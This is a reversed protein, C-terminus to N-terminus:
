EPLQRADPKEPPPMSVALTTRSHEMVVNPTMTKARKQARPRARRPRDLLGQSKLVSLAKGKMMEALVVRQKFRLYKLDMPMREQTRLDQDFSMPPDPFEFIGTRENEKPVLALLSYRSLSFSCPSSV